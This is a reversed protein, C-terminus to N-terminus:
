CSMLGSAEFLLNIFSSPIGSLGTHISGYVIDWCLFSSKKRKIFMLYIMGRWPWNWELSLNSASKLSVDTLLSTQIWLQPQSVLWLNNKKSLVYYSLSRMLLVSLLCLHSESTNFMCKILCIWKKDRQWFARSSLISWIQKIIFFVLHINIFENNGLPMLVTVEVSLRNSELSVKKSCSRKFVCTMQKHHM